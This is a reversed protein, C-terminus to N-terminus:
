NDAKELIYYIDLMMYISITWTPKVNRSFLSLHILIKISHNTYSM